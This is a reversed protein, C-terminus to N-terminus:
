VAENKVTDSLCPITLVRGVRGSTQSDFLLTSLFLGISIRNAKMMALLSTLVGRVAAVERGTADHVSPLTYYHRFLENTGDVVHVEM